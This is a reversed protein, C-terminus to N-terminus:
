PLTEPMSETEPKDQSGRTTNVLGMFGADPRLTYGQIEPRLFAVNDEYWLDVYPLELSILKQVQSYYKKRLAPDSEERAAVVLEDVTANEFSGRNAGVPPIQGSHFVYHYIDPDTIGVWTSTFTQFNGTRIDRYFTGWEFSAVKVGVGVAEWYRAIARAMAVRDRRHSTKLTLTFRKAPGEGDPDPFGASDLLGAAVQPDYDIQSVNPEYYENTPALMGTALRAFGKLQFEILAERDIAMALAERVRVNKLMPDRLNFALYNYNIGPESMMILKGRTKLWQAMVLPVANQLLDVEGHLIKLVRTTDDRITQFELSAPKPAGSFYKPFGTLRIWQDKAQAGYQFPGTGVPREQFSPGAIEDAGEPVIGVTLATLFPAFSEKLTIELTFPDVVKTNAIKRFIGALPSLSGPKVISDYTYKVDKATFARGDHFQVDQRLHFRIKTDSLFEYGNALDPVLLLKANFKLLGNFILSQVKSSYADAPYRPDLSSPFSEIGVVIEARERKPTCAVALIVVGIMIAMTKAKHM